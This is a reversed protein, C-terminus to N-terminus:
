MDDIYGLVVTGQKIGAEDLRRFLEEWTPAAAVIQSGDWSYAVQMGRYQDIVEIPIRDRNADHEPHPWPVDPFDTNDTHMDTGGRRGDQVAAGSFDVPHESRWFGAIPGTAAM